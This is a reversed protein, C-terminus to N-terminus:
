VEKIIVSTFYKLTSADFSFDLVNRHFRSKIGLKGYVASLTGPAVQVTNTEDITINIDSLVNSAYLLIEKPIPYDFIMLEYTNQLTTLDTNDPNLFELEAFFEKVRKNHSIIYKNNEISFAYIICEGFTDGLDVTQLPLSEYVAYNDNKVTFVLEYGRVSVEFGINDTQNELRLYDGEGNFQQVLHFTADTPITQDITHEGILDTIEVVNIDDAVALSYQSDKQLAAVRFNDVKYETDQTIGAKENKLFYYFDKVANRTFFDILTDRDSASNLYFSATILYKDGWQGPNGRLKKIEEKAPTFPFTEM